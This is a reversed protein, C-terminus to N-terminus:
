VPPFERVFRRASTADAAHVILPNEFPRGKIQFIRAVAAPNSADAGLGYVTETPFAVLEGSLLRAAAEPIAQGPDAIRTDVKSDIEFCISDAVDVAHGRALSCRRALILICYLSSTRRQILCGRGSPNPGWAAFRPTM